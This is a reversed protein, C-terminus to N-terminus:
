LKVYVELIETDSKASVTVQEMTAPLLLTDGAKASEVGDKFSLEVDGQLVIYIVFSELM